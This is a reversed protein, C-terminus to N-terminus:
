RQRRELRPWRFPVGRHRRTIAISFAKGRIQLEQADETIGRTAGQCRKQCRCGRRGSPRDGPVGHAARAREPVNESRKSAARHNARQKANHQWSSGHEAIGGRAIRWRMLPLCATRTRDLLARLQTPPAGDIAIAATGARAALLAAVALAAALLLAGGTGPDATGNALRAAAAAGIHLGVGVM